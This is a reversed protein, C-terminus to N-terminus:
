RALDEKALITNPVVYMCLYVYASLKLKLKLSVLRIIKNEDFCTELSEIRQLYIYM